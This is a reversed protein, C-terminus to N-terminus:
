FYTLMLSRLADPLYEYILGGPVKVQLFTKFMLVVTTATAVSIGLMKPSRYGSRYALALAFLLSSPLYGILPVLYVYVM